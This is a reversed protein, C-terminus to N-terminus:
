GQDNPQLMVRRFLKGKAWVMLMLYGAFILAYVLGFTMALLGEFLYVGCVVIGVISFSTAILYVFFMPSEFFEDHEAAKYVDSNWYLDLCFVLAMAGLMMGITM